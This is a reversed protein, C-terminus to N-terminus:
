TILLTAVIGFLIGSIIKSTTNEIIKRVFKMAGPESKEFKEIIVEPQELHPHLTLIETIALQANSYANLDSSQKSKERAMIYQRLASAPQNVYRAAHGLNLHFLSDDVESYRLTEVLHNEISM